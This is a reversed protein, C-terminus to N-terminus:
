LVIKLIANVHAQAIKERTNHDKLLQCDSPNDMFFNESLVAPCNTKTLIYFLSEKDADGDTFDLRLRQEPFMSAMEDILITAYLDSNTTGPSTFVELGHGGGANAHISFLVKQGDIRNIREVREALSMDYANPVLQVVNTIGEQQLMRIIRNVIDRNFEWEYLIVGDYKPSRKGPTNYGHGNDLIITM